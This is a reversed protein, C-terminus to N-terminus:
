QREKSIFIDTLASEQKFFTQPSIGAIEKFSHIFHSQDYYGAAYALETLSSVKDKFQFVSQFHYIQALQKPTLGINKQFKKQLVRSSINMESAITAIKTQNGRANLLAVAFQMAKFNAPNRFTTANLIDLLFQQVLNIREINNAAEVIKEDINEDAHKFLDRISITQQNLQFQPIRTLSSLGWPHFKVGIAGIKGVPKLEIFHLLQGYVLSQEQQHEEGNEKKQMPVGFHFIMEACGDPFIKEYGHLTGSPDELIWILKVIKQLPIAPIYETYLM